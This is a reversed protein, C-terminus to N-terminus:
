SHSKPRVTENIAITQSKLNKRLKKVAGKDLLSNFYVAFNSREMGLIEQVQTTVPETGVKKTFEKIAVYIRKETPTLEKMDM